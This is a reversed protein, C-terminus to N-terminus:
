WGVEIYESPQLYVFYYNDYDNYYYLTHHESVKDSEHIEYINEVCQNYLERLINFTCIQRNYQNDFKGIANYLDDFLKNFTDDYLKTHLYNAFDYSFIYNRNDFTHNDFQKKNNIYIDTIFYTYLHEKIEEIICKDVTILMSQLNNITKM